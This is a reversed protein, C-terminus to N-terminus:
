KGTERKRFAEELEALPECGDPCLARLRSLNQLAEEERETMLFLEGQYELAELHDPELALARRYALDSADLNGLKREAFGLMSWADANALGDASKIFGALGARAQQFDGAEIQQAANALRPDIDNEMWGPMVATTPTIQTIFAAATFVLGLLSARMTPITLRATM